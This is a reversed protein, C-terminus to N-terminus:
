FPGNAVNCRKSRPTRLTTNGVSGRSIEWLVVVMLMLL